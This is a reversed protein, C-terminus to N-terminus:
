FLGADPYRATLTKQRVLVLARASPPPTTTTRHVQFYFPARTAKESM